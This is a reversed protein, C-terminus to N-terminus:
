QIEFRIRLRLRREYTRGDREFPVYRYQRVAAVAAADFRGPPLSQTVGVDRTQGARDVVFELEVWGELGREVAEPPYVPPASSQLRMEGAPAATTLYTEQLRGVELDAAYRAAVAAAGPVQALGALQSEAAAWDRRALAGQLVAASADRLADWAAPLGDLTPAEMQLRSLRAFASDTEPAFLVGAEVRMLATELREGLQRQEERAQVAEIEAQVATLGAAGAGLRRAEAALSTASAPDADAVLRAAAVLAAALDTRLEAVRPDAANLQTARDLYARASDGAPTLLQGRRLRTAALNLVSDLESAPTASSAAAPAPSSALARALQADLFALRSSASDVRRVQDLAAAASELSGALLADEARTFLSDVVSSIGTRAATDAPALALIALYHDLANDGAPEVLRGEQLAAAARAHYDAVRDGLSPAPQPAVTAAPAVARGESQVRDRWGLRNGVLAGAALTAIGVAAVAPWIWRRTSPAAGAPTQASPPEDRLQLRRATASEILLRVAGVASPKILLRHIRGDSLFGVYEQAAARDAAVLTVLRDAYAALRAVLEPVRSGVLAADLLAIGCEGSDVAELLEPWTEVVFLPHQEAARRIVAILGPDTALVYLTAGSSALLDRVPTPPLTADLPGVQRNLDRINPAEMRLPLGVGSSLNEHSVAM